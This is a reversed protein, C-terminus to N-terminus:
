IMASSTRTYTKMLPLLLRYSVSTTQRDRATKRRSITLHVNLNVCLRFDSVDSGNHDYGRFYDRLAREEASLPPLRSPGALGADDVMQFCKLPIRPSFISGVEVDGDSSETRSKSHNPPTAAPAPFRKAKHLKAEKERQKGKLRAREEKEKRRAAKRAEKELATMDEDDSDTLDRLIEPYKAKDQEASAQRM